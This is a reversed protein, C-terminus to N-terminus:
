PDSFQGLFAHNSNARDNKKWRYVHRPGQLKVTAALPIDYEDKESSPTLLEMEDQNTKTIIGLEDESSDENVPAADVPPWPAM